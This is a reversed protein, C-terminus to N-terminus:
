NPVLLKGGHKRMADDYQPDIHSDVILTNIASLECYTYLSVVGAKSSDALLFVNQSKQVAIRKAESETVFSHTVGSVISFGTTAMFAKAINYQQLVMATTNGTFAHLNRDFAGSLSILTINDYPLSGKIIEINNSLITLDRVERLYEIMYMTTTGTDIFIIDGDSVLSAACKAVARKADPNKVTRDTFEQQNVATNATVGGYVKSIVGRQLLSDIDRRLTSKSVDFVECLTEISVSRHEVIYRELQDIRNIRM